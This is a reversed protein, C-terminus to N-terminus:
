AIPVPCFASAAAEAMAAAVELAFTIPWLHLALYSSVLSPRHRLVGFVLRLAVIVLNSTTPDDSRATIAWRLLTISHWVCRLVGGGCWLRLRRRWRRRLLVLLSPCRRPAVSRRIAPYVLLFWPFRLSVSCADEVAGLRLNQREM